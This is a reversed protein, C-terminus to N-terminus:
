VGKYTFLTNKGDGDHGNGGNYERRGNAAILDAQAHIFRFDFGKDPKPQSKAIQRAESHILNARCRAKSNM